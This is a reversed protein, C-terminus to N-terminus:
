LIEDQGLVRFTPNNDYNLVTGSYMGYVIHAGVIALPNTIGEWVELIAGTTPRRESQKPIVIKGKYMFSDEKVLIRGPWPHLKVTIEKPAEEEDMLSAPVRTGEMTPRFPKSEEKKEGRRDVVKYDSSM